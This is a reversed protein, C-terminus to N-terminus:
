QYHLHFMRPLLAFPLFSFITLLPFPSFPFVFPQRSRRCAEHETFAGDESLSPEVGLAVM